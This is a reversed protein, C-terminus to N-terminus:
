EEERYNITEQVKNMIYSALKRACIECGCERYDRILQKIYPTIEIKMM